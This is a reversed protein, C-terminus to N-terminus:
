KESQKLYSRTNHIAIKKIGLTDILKTITQEMHWEDEFDQPRLAITVHRNDVVDLIPKIRRILREADATEYSMLYIEDTLHDLLVYDKEDWHLPVSVSLKDDITMQERVAAIFEGYADLYRRRHTKYGPLTHPEVDLHLHGLREATMVSRILAQKQKDKFIWHRSGLMLEVSVNQTASQKLFEKLKDQNVRIGASVIVNSIGKAKFFQWLRDNPTSNFTRSWLYVSRIGARGRYQGDPIQISKLLQPSYSVQARSLLTNIRKYLETKAKVLEIAADITSRTRIVTSAFEATEPELSYELLSRRLRESARLYRYQQEINRELQEHLKIYAERARTVREWTELSHAADAKQYDHSLLSKDQRSLPISFRIGATMGDDISSNELQFNQRVYFELRDKENKARSDHFASIKEAELAKLALADNKIAEIVATLDVDVIPPNLTFPHLTNNSMLSADNLRQLSLKLGQYDSESVLFDDLFSWGKLYARKEIEMLPKIFDHKINLLHSETLTMVNSINMSRCRGIHQHNDQQARLKSLQSKYRAAESKEANSRYGEKLVNWNLELYATDADDNEDLSDTIQVSYGGKVKVGKDSALAESQRQWQLSDINQPSEPIFRCPNALLTSVDDINGTKHMLTFLADSTQQLNKWIDAAIGSQKQVANAPSSLVLSAGLLWTLGCKLTPHFPLQILRM